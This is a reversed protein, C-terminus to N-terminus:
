ALETIKYRRNDDSNRYSEVLPLQCESVEGHAYMDELAEEARDRTRYGTAYTTRRDETM